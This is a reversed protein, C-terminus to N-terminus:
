QKNLVVTTADMGGDKNHKDFATVIIRYTGPLPIKLRTAFQGAKGSYQLPLTSVFTTGRYVHAEVEFNEHKWQGDKSPQCGCLKMVNATIRVPTDPDFKVKEHPAPSLVDVAMGPMEMMIGNGSTYDKGPILIYDESVTIASQMQSLPAVATITVATPELIALSFEFKASNDDALVAHRARNEAMIKETSGTSGYTYGDVLIDGTLKDTVVIRAGGVADGIFKADKSLLTVTIDTDFEDAYAPPIIMLAMVLVFSTLWLRLM